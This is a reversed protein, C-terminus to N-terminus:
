HDVTKAFLVIDFGSILAMQTPAVLYWDYSLFAYVNIM